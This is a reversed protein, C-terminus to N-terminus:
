CSCAARARSRRARARHGARAPARRGERRRAAVAGAGLQYRADLDWPRLRVLRRFLELAPEWKGAAATACAAARLSPLTTPRSTPRTTSSRRRGERAAKPDNPAQRLYLEGILRQAEYSSPISSCRASSITSPTRSTPRECRDRRHLLRPRPGDHVGSLHGERARARAARRAVDDLARRRGESVVGRRDRRRALRSVDADRGPQQAEGAVKATRGDIKWVLVRHASGRRDQRVLRHDRLPM